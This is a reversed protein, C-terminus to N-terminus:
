LGAPAVSGPRRAFANAVRGGTMDMPFGPEVTRPGLRDDTLWAPPVTPARARIATMYACATRLGSGSRAARRIDSVLSRRLGAPRRGAKPTRARRHNRQQADAVPKLGSTPSIRGNAPLRRAMVATGPRVWDFHAGPHRCRRRRLRRALSRRCDLGEAAQEIRRCRSSSARRIKRM